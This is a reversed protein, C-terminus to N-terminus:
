FINSKNLLFYPVLEEFVFDNIFFMEYLNLSGFMTNPTFIINTLTCLNIFDRGILKSQNPRIGKYVFSNDPPILYLKKSEGVEMKDFNFYCNNQAETIGILQVKVLFMISM